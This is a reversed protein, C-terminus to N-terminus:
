AGDLDELIRDASTSVSPPGGHALDVDRVWNTGSSSLVVVATATPDVIGWTRARELGALALASTPEVFFGARALRDMADIIERESVAVPAGAEQLALSAHWGSRPDRASLALSLPEAVTQPEGADREATLVLPAAGEPQCALVTPVRQDSRAAHEKLGQWVGYLTDGSSAPLSVVEPPEGLADVIEDAIAKYGEQGYPNGRGALSPDAGTSPYWGRDVLAAILEQVEGPVVAIRAGYAAVQTHLAPPAEPHLCVLCSLGARAAFAACAAGHNGTSSVVVSRYGLDRAIALSVAHFRDKHSGTPNQGELKLWVSDGLEPAAVLPTAGQGLELLREAAVPLLEDAGPEYGVVLPGGCAACGTWAPGLGATRGCAVCRLCADPNWAVNASDRVTSV